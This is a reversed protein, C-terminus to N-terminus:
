RSTRRSHRNFGVEVTSGNIEPTSLKLGLGFRQLDGPLHSPGAYGDTPGDLLRLNYQPAFSFVWANALPAVYDKELDFGFMGFEGVNPSSTGSQPMWTFDYRATWGYRYPQSGNIAGYSYQGFPSQPSPAAYPMGGGLFPDGSQIPQPVGYPQPTGFPQTTVFPQATGSFAANPDPQYTPQYLTTNPIAPSGLLPAIPQGPSQGRFQLPEDARILASDFLSTWPRSSPASDPAAAALCLIFAISNVRRGQTSIRTKAMVDLGAKAFAGCGASEAAM